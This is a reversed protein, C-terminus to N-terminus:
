LDPVEVWAMDFGAGWVWKKSLVGPPEEGIVATSDYCIQAIKIWMDGTVPFCAADEGREFPKVVDEGNKLARIFKVVHGDDHLDNAARYMAQWDLGKSLTPEYELVDQARMEAAGSAAYWVLDLRGKWELLRAKDEIKIWPQQMLVDIFISCTAIHLHFFDLKRAKGPKQAASTYAACSIMEATSRELEKPSVQFQAAVTALEDMARRLVGQGRRPGDEFCGASRIKDNARVEAYLDVLPKTQVSGSCALQESRTFFADIDGSQHTAAQALAEAIISSQKFEVGFGLHIIPHFLGEYLQSFMADALPTRSFCYEEVVAKWDKVEMEQEFFNLFNTYQSQDRMRAKFTEPDGLEKVIKSDVPPLPRQIGTSDDYARKLEESGGGIALVTLVSHVTHNHGAFDRFFMHYKDHNEQLLKNATEVGGLPSECIRALGIHDFSLHVQSVEASAM